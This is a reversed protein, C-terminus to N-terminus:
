DAPTKLGNERLLELIQAECIGIAFVEIQGFMQLSNHRMMGPKRAVFTLTHDTKFYTESSEGTEADVGTPIDIAVRSANICNAAEIWEVFPSRPTGRSGTGLMADVVLEASGIAPLAQQWSESDVLHLGLNNGAKLIKCNARNDNSLKEEPGVVYCEVPWGKSRLLRTIAVGDGGNNGSGCLVVTSPRNQFKIEIWDACNRAANEMLVLSNMGFHEIARRDVNRIQATSLVSKRLIEWPDLM